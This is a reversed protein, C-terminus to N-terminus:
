ELTKSKLFTSFDKGPPGGPGGPGGRPTPRFFLFYYLRGLELCWLHMLILFGDLFTLLQKRAARDLM